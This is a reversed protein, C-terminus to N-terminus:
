GKNGCAMFYFGISAPAIHRIVSNLDVGGLFMMIVSLIFILLGAVVTLKSKKGFGGALLLIGFVVQLVSIFWNVSTLDVEPLIKFYLSYILLAATIRLMWKALPLLSKLPEM